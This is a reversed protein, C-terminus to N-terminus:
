YADQVLKWRFLFFLGRGKIGMDGVPIAKERSGKRAFSGKRRWRERVFRNWESM